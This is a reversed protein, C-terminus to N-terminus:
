AIADTASMWDDDYREDSMGRGTWETAPRSALHWPWRRSTGHASTFFIGM